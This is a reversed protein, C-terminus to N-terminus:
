DAYDLLGKHIQVMSLTKMRGYDSLKRRVGMLEKDSLKGLTM